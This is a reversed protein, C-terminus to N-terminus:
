KGQGAATKARILSLLMLRVTNLFLCDKERHMVPLEDYPLLCPHTKKVPDKELGYVWGDDIKTQMWADHLISMDECGAMVMRVGKRVSDKQWDPAEDWHAHSLDGFARCFARNVEHAASACTEVVYDDFVASESGEKLVEENMVDKVGKVPLLGHIAVLDQMAEWQRQLSMGEAISQDILSEAKERTMDGDTTSVILDILKERDSM